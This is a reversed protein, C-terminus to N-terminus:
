LLNKLFHFIEKEVIDFDDDVKFISEIKDLVEQKRDPTPYHVGKHAMITELAEFDSMKDFIAYMKDYTNISVTKIITAKEESTFEENVNAAYLLTICIFEDYSLNDKM